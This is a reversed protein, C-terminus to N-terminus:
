RHIPKKIITYHLLGTNIQKNKTCLFAMIFKKKYRVTKTISGEEHMIFYEVIKLQSFLFRVKLM